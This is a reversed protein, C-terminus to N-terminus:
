VWVEKASKSCCNTRDSSRARGKRFRYNSTRNSRLLQHSWFTAPAFHAQLLKEVHERLQENGGCANQVYANCEEPTAREIAAYFISEVESLNTAM